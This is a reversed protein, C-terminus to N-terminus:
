RIADSVEVLEVQLEVSNESDVLAPATSRLGGAFMMMTMYGVKSTGLWGSPQLTESIFPPQSHQRVTTVGSRAISLVGVVDSIAYAPRAPPVHHIQKQIWIEPGTTM